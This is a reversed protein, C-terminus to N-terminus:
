MKENKKGAIDTYSSGTPPNLLANNSNPDRKLIFPNKLKTKTTNALIALMRVMRTKMKCKLNGKLTNIM